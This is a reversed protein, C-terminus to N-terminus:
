PAIDLIAIEPPVRFRVPIISTGIGTTVFLRRGGEVILGAAYRTGFDSPIIPAGLLPFRVQGGHTHGAITLAVRAPVYSFVDPNHTFAIIPAGAPIHNLAPQFRPYHTTRDIIGLLWLPARGALPVEAIDDDLVRIGAHELARRM